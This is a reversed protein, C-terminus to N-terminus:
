LSNMVKMRVHHLHAYMSAHAAVPDRKALADYIAQHERLTSEHSRDQLAIQSLTEDFMSLLPDINGELIPNNASYAIVRHFEKDLPAYGEKNESMENLLQELTRLQESTIKEAAITVLGLELAMRAEMIAPIDGASLALMISYPKSGIKEAFYTGERTKRRIIGMTELSSLAERLVPRSVFLMECLELESPLKDGPNLARSKLLGIIRDVVQKSMTERKISKM